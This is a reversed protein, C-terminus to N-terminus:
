KKLEMVIQPTGQGNEPGEYRVWFHPVEVSFWFYARPLFPRLANLLGLQPVLEIKYCEFEGASTKVREKGRMQFKIEYLQPENTLFHAMFPRWNEFPLFRLVGAVGEVTLTDPPISIQKTEPSRGPRTREFRVTGKAVDFNKQERAITHGQADTITKDFRLPRLSGDATWVAELSWSVPSVYPSYRGQGIETFRVAPLGAERWPEMTWQANWRQGSKDSVILSGRDRPITSPAPLMSLMALGFGLIFSIGSTM